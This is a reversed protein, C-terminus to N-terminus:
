DPSGQRPAPVEPPAYSSSALKSTPRGDIHAGGSPARTRTRELALEHVEALVAGLASPEHAFRGLFLGDVSDGLESLTGPGAAGGYIVASEPREPDNDLEERLASVVTAIHEPPAPEQSGIAWDPEYAVIMRGSGSQATGSRLQRVVEHAADQSTMRATEGLCLIPVLNSRLAAATKRAVVPETDGFLRRRESHGVVVAHVGLEALEAGSVEGTYPGPDEAAVDQAGVLAGTGALSRLAGPIALYSPSIILKLAGSDIAANDRAIDAVQEIWASAEGIGFYMKLSVGVVLQRM